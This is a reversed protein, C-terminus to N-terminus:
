CMLQTERVELESSGPGLNRSHGVPKHYQGAVDIDYLILLYDCDVNLCMAALAGDVSPVDHNERRYM